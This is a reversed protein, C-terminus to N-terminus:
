YHDVVGEVVNFLGWGFVIGALISRGEPPRPARRWARAFVVIGVVTIVWTAAHFLGDALTNLELNSITSPPVPGSLMHHWQLIQHFLRGGLLGGLGIGLLITALRM